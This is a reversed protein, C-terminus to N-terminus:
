YIFTEMEVSSKAQAIDKLMAPFVGDGNELIRADNGHVMISGFSDLSRLFASDEVKMPAPLVFLSRKDHHATCGALTLVAATLVLMRATRRTMAEWILVRDAPRVVTRPSSRDKGCGAEPM